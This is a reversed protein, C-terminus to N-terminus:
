AAVPMTFPEWGFETAEFYTSHGLYENVYLGRTPLGELTRWREWLHSLFVKIMKRMSANHIRAKTWEPRNAQYYIKANDYVKRYPSGSRLFSSGILYCVTKATKNYHLKEGKKPREREGDIVAYGCYRWLASVSDAREIDITAILKAALMEGLGKVAIMHDIIPYNDTAQRIDADLQHEMEAFKQLWKEIMAATKDDAEDRGSEIAALRNGMAIRSKQITRDRLDVLVRLMNDAMNIEEQYTNV